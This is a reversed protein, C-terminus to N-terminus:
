GKPKGDDGPKPRQSQERRADRRSTLWSLGLIIAVILLDVGLGVAISTGVALWSGGGRHRVASYLPLFMSAFVCLLALVFLCGVPHSFGAQSGRSLSTRM